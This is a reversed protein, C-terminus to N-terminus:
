AGPLVLMGAAIGMALAVIVFGVERLASAREIRSRAM